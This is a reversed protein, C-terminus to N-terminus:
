RAAALARKEEGDRNPRAPLFAALLFCLYTIENLVLRFDGALTQKFWEVDTSTLPRQSIELRTEAFVAYTWIRMVFYAFVGILMLGRRKPDTDWNWFVLLSVLFLEMSTNLIIFFPVAPQMLASLVSYTLSPENLAMNMMSAYMWGGGITLGIAIISLFLSTNALRMRWEERHVLRQAVFGIGIAWLAGILGGVAMGLMGLPLFQRGYFALIVTLVPVTVYYPNLRIESRRKNAMSANM